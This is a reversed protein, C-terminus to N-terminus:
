FQITVGARSFQERLLARARSVRSRVTGLPISLLDAADQYSIEDVAVLGLVKSM